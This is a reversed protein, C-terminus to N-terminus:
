RGPAALMTAISRGADRGDRVATVVLDAGRLMDGGAFVRPHATQFPLPSAGAAPGVPVLGSADAAIGLPALWGPPDAAFGFAVIVIDADLMSESGPVIDAGARGRADPAGPRTEALHVGTVARAAGVLALPQRNFLFRVGEERAHKVERRSGPMDAEDRRYVCTVEAAGLRVATRVCDMGTDGGGLVAVRRGGLAEQLAALELGGYRAANGNWGAIPRLTAGDHGLVRRGNAVLFPLAPIVNGLELGPLAGDLYRYTGLGLFLADHRALLDDLSVDVGVEIGLRFRIGMGELVERRTRIAAKDLKFPPIGFTLLGGIEEYRDYVHAEIGRRALQDACALGAPGAGVIAVSRGTARVKSLDPRWGLRFSEDVIYKEIAGITVSEFGTELTCAGECLRDQPCIRGCIEPLPNTEHCLAAAEFLRGDRVLALWNPIDNHVPCQWECYPNGCDLCRASQETAEAADYEGHIEGWSLVRVETPVRGPLRRPVELFQFPKGSM